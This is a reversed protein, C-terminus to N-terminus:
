LRFDWEWQYFQTPGDGQNKESSAPSLQDANPKAAYFILKDDAGSLALMDDIIGAITKKFLKRGEEVDGVPDVTGIDGSFRVTLVGAMHPNFEVVVGQADSEIESATEFYILAYPRTVGVDGDIFISALAAAANAASVFIQFDACESILTKMNEEVLGGWKTFAIAM